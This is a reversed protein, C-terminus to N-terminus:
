DGDTTFAVHAGLALWSFQQSTDSGDVAIWTAHVGLDIKPILTFDLGLGGDYTLDTVTPESAHRLHGVGAHAFVSPEIIFGVAVRAGLVGRYARASAPGPFSSYSGGLEPTLEILWLDWHKGVRAGAGWGRHVGPRDEPYAFEADVAFKNAASASSPVSCAAVATALCLAKFKIFRISPM